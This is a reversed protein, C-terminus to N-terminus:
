IEDSDHDSLYKGAKDGDTGFATKIAKRKLTFKQPQAGSKVAYYTADDVYSDYNNGSSTIGNTQFDAKLFKTNLQKYIKYKSGTSLVQIYHANDISPVFEFSFQQGNDDFLVFKRAKDKYVTFMSRGNDTYLLVGEIKHYNFLYDDNQVISDQASIAYGHVWHDFLYPSGHLQEQTTGFSTMPRADKNAGGIEQIAFADSKAAAQSTTSGNGSSTIKIPLDTSNNIPVVARQYNKCSVMLRSAPDANLTYTGDPGTFTQYNHQADKVFAFAVPTGKEDTVTGSVSITQGFVCGGILLFLFLITVRKM